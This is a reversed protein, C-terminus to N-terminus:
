VVKFRVVNYQESDSYEILSVEDDSNNVIAHPIHPSVTYLVYREMILSKKEDNEFWFFELGNDLPFFTETRPHSHNGGISKSPLQIIAEYEVQYTLLKKISEFLFHNKGDPSQRDPQLRQITIVSMYKHEVHFM